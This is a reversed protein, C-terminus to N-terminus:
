NKSQTQDCANKNLQISQNAQLISSNIIKKNYLVNKSRRSM